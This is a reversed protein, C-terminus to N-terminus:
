IWACITVDIFAKAKTVEIGKPQWVSYLDVYWFELFSSQSVYTNNKNQKQTKENTFGKEFFFLLM